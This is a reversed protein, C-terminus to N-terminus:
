GSACAAGGVFGQGGSPADTLAAGTPVPANAAPDLPAADNQNAIFNTVATTDFATGGYGPLRVITDFRQRLRFDTGGNRGSGIMSNGKANLCWNFSQGDVTATNLQLGQFISGISANTGPNSITNGTVTADINGDDIAQGGSGSTIEIGFNNYQRVQNNTIAVSTHSGNTGTTHNLQIGDGELSGSNATGASGIINSNVTATLNGSASPNDGFVLLIANGTAGTMTNTAVNATTNAAGGSTIKVNGAGTAPAGLGSTPRSQSMTNNTFVVDGATGSEDYGFDHSGSATFTSSDVTVNMTSTGTGNIDVNRSGQTDSNNGFTDSQLTLRNLTGATNIVGVNDTVGGKIGSNSIANSSGTLETFRIASENFPSGASAPAETGSVGDIVSNSLSFGGPVSDGRIAYNSSNAIHVRTLSTDRTSKLAIGTGIPSTGSDDSGTTGQITGGSCGTTNALTCTGGTGTVVLNGATGTNNLRIGNAGGSTNIHDFTVDAAAFDTDVMNLGRNSASLGTSDLTNGSGSVQFTGSTTANIGNGSTTDIDSGGGSLVFTHGDSSSFTVADSAGTNYQKTAGSFVTSGGTNNAINVGGGADNTDNMNGSLSVVGGSRGTIEAVLPGSGNAFTGPYTIAGSGGNLDFGIGAEGGIDGSAASFTGTGLGDLNIGDNASNTSDVDDFNLNPTTTGTVDLAPGGTASLNDTGASGISVTGATALNLAAPAGSVTTLSLDPGSGEGLTTTGTTSSMSVGGSGSNTVTIDDFTSSSGLATSTADLGKAGDTTVSIAGTPDFNVTGASNLRVGTDTSTASSGDGNNVTLNSVNTTTGASTDLELGPQTGKTGNDVVNLDDLAVTTAGLGTGFIGGGTGQPDLNFGKVTAGGALTVVDANNNTLSARNAADATHLTDSGVTLTAGESLLREGTNMTFGTNYGTTTDDGDYVFTTHNNGSATQAQALTDFPKESTGSNGQADNNNVYWVCGTIAITVRGTDTQENSPDNDEVTYDFFDSTDTCSTSPAPEFNFDGDAQITVTGGDNTAFTGATVTFTNNASDVDTDNGLIDGTIEKHPRDTVPSTDTPDPTALRGDSTANRTVSTNVNLTTNGIASNTANFTEDGAVPADNVCTVTMSVTASDGGNVTYTFTDPTTGPPDNCYNPDPQYTLGTRHGPTGGTGVVTGNAPDSTATIEKLGGDIDTDNTLVPISTAAADELVTASDNVADPPDDVNVVNITRGGPGSSGLAGPQDTAGFIISRSTTNPNESSNQYTIARLAATYNAGSDLGTLVITQANSNINDLTINDALNNDTWNLFDQGAQYTGITIQASAGSLNDGEPDSV